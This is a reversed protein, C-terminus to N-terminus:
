PRGASARRRVEARITADVDRHIAPMEPPVLDALIALRSHELRDRSRFRRESFRTVETIVLRLSM